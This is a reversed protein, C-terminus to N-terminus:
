EANPDGNEGAIKVRAPVKGASERARDVLRRLTRFFLRDGHDMSDVQFVMLQGDDAELLFQGYEMWNAGPTFTIDKVDALAISESDGREHYAIVRGSTLVVGGERISFFGDTCFLEISEDASIVELEELIARYEASLERGPIPTTAPSAAVLAWVVIGLILSFAGLCMGSVALGFGGAEQRRIAPLAVGGFTVAVIGPLFACCSVVGLIGCVLSAIALGSTKVPQAYRHQVVAEPWSGPPDPFQTM